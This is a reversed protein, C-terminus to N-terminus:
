KNKLVHMRLINNISLVYDSIYNLVLFYELRHMLNYLILLNQTILFCHLLHYLHMKLIHFEKINLEMLILFLLVHSLQQNNTNLIMSIHTLEHIVVMKNSFYLEVTKFFLFHPVMKNYYSSYFSLFNILYRVSLSDMFENISLPLYLLEDM